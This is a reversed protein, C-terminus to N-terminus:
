FGSLIKAKLADYEVESILGQDLMEKAQKLKAMPDDGSATPGGPVSPTAPQGIYIGGAKARAEELERARRMERWEQEHQQCLGYARKAQEKDLHDMEEKRGDTSRAILKAGRLGQSFHIDAIDQWLFDVLKVRKGFLGPRYFVIRNNTVVVADKATALSMSGQVAICEIVENPTLLPAVEKRIREALGSASLHSGLADGARRAADMAQQARDARGVKDDM